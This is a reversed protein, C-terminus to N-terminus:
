YTGYLKWYLRLLKKKTELHLNLNTTKFGKSSPGLVKAINANSVINPPFDGKTNFGEGSLKRVIMFYNENQDKYPVYDWSPFQSNAERKVKRDVKGMM